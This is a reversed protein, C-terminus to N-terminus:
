KKSYDEVIIKIGSGDPNSLQVAQKASYLYKAAYQAAQVRLDPGIVYNMKVEGEATEKFYCEAEYGLGKWDGMAFRLLIELPDVGLKKALEEAQFSKINKSGKPRAM